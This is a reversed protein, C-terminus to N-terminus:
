PQCRMRRLTVLGERGVVFGRLTGADEVQLVLVMTQTTGNGLTIRVTSANTHVWDGAVPGRVGAITSDPLTVRRALAGENSRSTVVSGLAKAASPAAVRGAPPAVPAAFGAVAALASATDLSIRSPLGSGARPDGTVGYCGAVAIPRASDSAQLARPTGLRLQERMPTVNAPPAPAPASAARREAVERLSDATRENPATAVAPIPQAAPVNAASVEDRRAGKSLDAEAAARRQRPATSDRRQQAVPAKSFPIMETKSASPGKQARNSRQDVATQAAGGGLAAPAVAPMSVAPGQAATDAVTASDVASIALDSGQQRTVLLTGAAVILVAAAAARAPTLRLARWLTGEGGPARRRAMASGIDHEPGGGGGGARPVVNGPVHDLASLIRSAGAVLGRAEAVAAACSACGAVHQEIRAGEAADLAGDLWAHITGEDLHQM